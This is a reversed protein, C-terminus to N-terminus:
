RRGSSLTMLLFQFLNIFNIFLCLAGYNAAVEIAAPDGEVQYYALKLRQTDCAILGAFVVLGILNTAWLLASSQLLLNVALTALLGVLGMVLFGGLATLDRRALYGALSLGGFASASIAFTTAISSGTFTLVLVGLSAGVMAVISWYLAHTRLPTPKSVLVGGVILALVPSLAVFTGLPTLGVMRSAAAAPPLRFLLDRIVPVSSTLYAAGAALVLGLAVRNYVGLMYRRLGEDRALDAVITLKQPYGEHLDSM